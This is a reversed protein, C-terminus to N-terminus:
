AVERSGAPESAERLAAGPAPPVATGERDHPAPMGEIWDSRARERRALVVLPAALLQV